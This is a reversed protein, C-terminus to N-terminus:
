PLPTLNGPGAKMEREMERKGVELSLFNHILSTDSDKERELLLGPGKRTKGKWSGKWGRGKWSGKWVRINWVRIIKYGGEMSGM